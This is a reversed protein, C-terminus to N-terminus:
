ESHDTLEEAVDNVTNKGRNVFQQARDQLYEMENKSRDVFNKGMKKGKAVCTGFDDKLEDFAGKEEMRRVMYGVAAGVAGISIALLLKRM